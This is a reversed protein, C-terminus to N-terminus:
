STKPFNGLLGVGMVVGCSAEKVTVGVTMLWGHGYFIQDCVIM